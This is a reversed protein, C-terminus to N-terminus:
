RGRRLRVVCDIAEFTRDDVVVPRLVEEAREVALGDAAGLDALVDAATYLVSASQPGGYGDTLNRSDHAVVLLTGGPALAEAAARLVRGREPAPLQLYFVVVLDYSRPSPAWTLLDAEVWEVAVGRDAALRRGKALGEAAFDVGTATWGQQALWVANRGEGCALDLARGPALGAVEPPLFRNPEAKWILEDTAYRANWDSADM